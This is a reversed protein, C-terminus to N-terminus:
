SSVRFEGGGEFAWGGLDGVAWGEGWWWGLDGVVRFSGGGEVLM